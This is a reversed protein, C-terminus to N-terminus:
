RVWTEWTSGSLPATALVPRVVSTQYLWRPSAILVAGGPPSTALFWYSPAPRVVLVNWVSPRLSPTPSGHTLAPLTLSSLTSVWASVCYSALPLAM